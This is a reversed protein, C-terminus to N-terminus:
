SFGFLALLAATTETKRNQEKHAEFL